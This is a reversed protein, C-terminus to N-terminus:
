IKFNFFYLSSFGFKYINKDQSFVMIIKSFGYFRLKVWKKVLKLGSNYKM